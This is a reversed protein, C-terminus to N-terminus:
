ERFAPDLDDQLQSFDLLDDDLLLHDLNDSDLPASLAPLLDQGSIAAVNDMLQDIDTNNLFVSEMDAIGSHPYLGQPPPSYFPSYSSTIPKVAVADARPYEDFLSTMHGQLQEQQVRLQYQLQEQLQLASQMDRVHQECQLQSELFVDLSDLDEDSLTLNLTNPTERSSATPEFRQRKTKLKRPKRTQHERKMSTGFRKKPGGVLPGAFFESMMSAPPLASAPGTKAEQSISIKDKREQVTSTSQRAPTIRFSTMLSEYERRRRRPRVVQGMVSPLYQWFSGSLRQRGSVPFFMREVSNPHFDRTPNEMRWIDALADRLQRSKIHSIRVNKIMESVQPSTPCLAHERQMTFLHFTLYIYVHNAIYDEDVAVATSTATNNNDAQTMLFDSRLIDLFFNPCAMAALASNNLMYRFNGTTLEHIRIDKQMLISYNQCVREMVLKRLDSLNQQDHGPPRTANYMRIYTRLDQQDFESEHNLRDILHGHLSNYLAHDGRDSRLDFFVILTCLTYMLTDMTLTQLYQVAGSEDTERPHSGSSDAPYLRYFKILIEYLARFVASELHFLHISDFENKNDPERRTIPLRGSVQKLLNKDCLIPTADGTFVEIQESHSSPYPISTHQFIM